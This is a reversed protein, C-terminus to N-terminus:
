EGAAQYRLQPLLYARRIRAVFVRPKPQAELQPERPPHDQREIKTIMTCGSSSSPSGPLSGVVPCPVWLAVGGVVTREPVAQARTQLLERRPVAHCPMPIGLVILM